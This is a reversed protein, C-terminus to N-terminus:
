QNQLYEAQLRGMRLRMLNIRCATEAHGAGAGSGYSASTWDCEAKLYANFAKNAVDFAKAAAKKKEARDVSRAVGMVKDVVATYQKTVSALEERLCEGYAVQTGAKSYCAAVPDDPDAAFAGAALAILMVGTLLSRMPDFRRLFHRTCLFAPTGGHLFARMWDGAMLMSVNEMSFTSFTTLGGLLGTVVFLRVAPHVGPHQVFFATLLGIVFAGALNCILTGAPMVDWVKNFGYSLAWRLSAGVAAGSAVAALVLFLNGDRTEFM